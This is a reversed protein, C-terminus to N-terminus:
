RQFSLTWAHGRDTFEFSSPLCVHFPYRFISSSEGDRWSLLFSPYSLYLRLYFPYSRSHFLFRHEAGRFIALGPLVVTIPHRSTREHSQLALVNPVTGKRWVEHTCEMRYGAEKERKREGEERKGTICRWPSKGRAWEQRRRPRRVWSNCAVLINRVMTWSSSLREM